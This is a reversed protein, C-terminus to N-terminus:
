QVKSRCEVANKNSCVAPPNTEIVIKHDHELAVFDLQSATFPTQIIRWNLQFFTKFIDKFDILISHTMRQPQIEEDFVLVCALSLM